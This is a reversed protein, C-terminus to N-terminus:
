LKRTIESVPLPFLGARARVTDLLLPEFVKNYLGVGGVSLAGVTEGHYADTFALFRTKTQKGTQMHYQFSMKLAVEVASSGNDALFVKHLGPPALAVLKEALRIAPEHTFNAFITHELTFAQLSLARSIRPNAHGFLNVWWSSVADLYRKDHEDYLWM